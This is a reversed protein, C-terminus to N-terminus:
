LNSSSYIKDDTLIFINNSTQLIGRVMTDSDITGFNILEEFPINDMHCNIW